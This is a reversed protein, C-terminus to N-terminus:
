VALILDPAHDAVLHLSWAVLHFSWVTSWPSWTFRHPVQREGCPAFLAASVTRSHAFSDRKRALKDRETALLSSSLPRFPSLKYGKRGSADVALSRASQRRGAM